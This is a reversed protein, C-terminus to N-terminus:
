CCNRRTKQFRTYDVTVRTLHRVKSRRPSFFCLTRISFPFFTTAGEGGLPHTANLSDAPRVTPAMPPPEHPRDPAEPRDGEAGDCPGERQDKWSRPSQPHSRPPHSLLSHTRFGSDPPASFSPSHGSILGETTPALVHLCVPVVHACAM